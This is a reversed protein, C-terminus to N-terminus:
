EQDDVLSAQITDVAQFAYPARANEQNQFSYTSDRNRPQKAHYAQDCAKYFQCRDAHPKEAKSLDKLFGDLIKKEDPTM